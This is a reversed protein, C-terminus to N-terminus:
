PKPKEFNFFICGWCWWHNLRDTDIGLLIEQVSVFDLVRWGCVGEREWVSVKVIFIEAAAAAISHLFQILLLSLFILGPSVQQMKGWFWCMLLLRITLRYFSEEMVRRGANEEEADDAEEQPEFCGFGLPHWVPIRGTVTCSMFCPLAEGRGWVREAERQERPKRWGQWMLLYSSSYLLSEHPIEGPLLKSTLSLRCSFCIKSWKM